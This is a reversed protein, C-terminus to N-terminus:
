RALRLAFENPARLVRGLQNPKGTVVTSAISIREVSLLALERDPSRVHLLNADLNELPFCLRRLQGDISVNGHEASAAGGESSASLRQERTQGL